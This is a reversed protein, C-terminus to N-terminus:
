VQFQDKGGVADKERPCQQETAPEGVHETAPPEEDRTQREEGRSGKEATERPRPARQDSEPGHLPETSGQERRGGQGQQHRGERLSTFAVEGEADVSRCRAAASCGTDQEATEQSGIQ